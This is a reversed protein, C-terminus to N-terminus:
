VKWRASQDKRAGRLVPSFLMVGAGSRADCELVSIGKSRFYAAWQKSAAPDAQDARNLIVVRPKSGVLADIAPHRRAIPIRADIVEAVVDM